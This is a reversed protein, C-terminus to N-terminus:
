ANLFVLEYFKNNRSPKNFPGILDAHILNIVEKARHNNMPFKDRTLKSMISKVNISILIVKLKKLLKITLIDLNLIYYTILKNEINKKSNM